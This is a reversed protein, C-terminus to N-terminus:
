VGVAQRCEAPHDIQHHARFQARRDLFKKATRWSVGAAKQLAQVNVIANQEQLQHYAQILKAYTKNGLTSPETPGTQKIRQLYAIAIDDRVKAIRALHRSSIRVDSQKLLAYAANLRSEQAMRRFQARQVRQGQLISLGSQELKRAGPRTIGLKSAIQAYTHERQDQEDLGYRLTMVQRIQGPLTDLLAEVLPPQHNQCRAGEETHEPAQLTDALCLETDQPFPKELSTPQITYLRDATGHKKAARLSSRPVRIPMVSEMGDAIAHRIAITAYAAFDGSEFSYAELAHLLGINGEQILDNRYSSPYSQTLTLVLHLHGHILANRAALGEEQSIQGQNALLIRQGLAATEEASLLPIQDVEHRYQASSFSEFVYSDM